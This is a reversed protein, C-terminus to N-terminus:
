SCSISFTSAATLTLSFIYNSYPTSATVLYGVTTPCPGGPPLTQTVTFNFNSSDQDIGFSNQLAYAKIYPTATVSNCGPPNGCVTSPAVGFCSPTTSVPSGLQNASYNVSACRTAAEVGHQLGVQTWLLMGAQILGFILLLFFPMTVSFEVMAAGRTDDRLLKLIM